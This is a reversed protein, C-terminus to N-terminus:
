QQKKEAIRARMMPMAAARFLGAAATVVCLAVAFLTWAFLTRGWSAFATEPAVYHWENRAKVCAHRSLRGTGPPCAVALDMVREFTVVLLLTSLVDVYGPWFETYEGGRRTRGRAM